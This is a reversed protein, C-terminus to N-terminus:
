NLTRSVCKEALVRVSNRRAALGIKEVLVLEVRLSKRVVSTKCRRRSHFVHVFCQLNDIDNAVIDFSRQRSIQMYLNSFWFFPRFSLSKLSMGVISMENM